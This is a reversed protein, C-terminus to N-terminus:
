GHFFVSRETMVYDRFRQAIPSLQGDKQYVMYFNRKKILDRIYFARVDGEKELKKAAYGSVVSIGLGAAVAGLSSSAGAAGQSDLGPAPLGKPWWPAAGLM